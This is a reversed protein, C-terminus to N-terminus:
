RAAAGASPKRTMVLGCGVVLARRGAARKPPRDLWAELGPNPRLDAWQVDRPDGRAAAYLTEFWGTTDGRGLAEQALRRARARAEEVDRIRRITLTYGTATVQVRGIFAHLARWSYRVPMSEIATLGNSAHFM